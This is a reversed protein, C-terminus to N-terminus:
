KATGPKCRLNTKLEKKQKASLLASEAKRKLEKQCVLLLHPGTPKTRQGLIYAAGEVDNLDQAGNKWNEPIYRYNNFSHGPVVLYASKPFDKNM